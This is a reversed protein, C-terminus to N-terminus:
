DLRVLGRQLAITVAETRQEVGLKELISRVHWKVTPEALNLVSAIEKNALGKAILEL